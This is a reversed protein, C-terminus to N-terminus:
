VSQVRHGCRWGPLRRRSGGGERNRTANGSELKQSRRHNPSEDFQSQELIQAVL